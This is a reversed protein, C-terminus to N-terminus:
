NYEEMIMNTNAVRTYMVCQFQNFPIMPPQSESLINVLIPMATQDTLLHFGMDGNM